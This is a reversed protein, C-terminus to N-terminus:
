GSREAQLLVAETWPAVFSLAIQAGQDLLRALGKGEGKGEDKGKGKGKGKGPQYEM